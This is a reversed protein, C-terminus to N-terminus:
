PIKKRAFILASPMNKYSLPASSVVVDITSGDVRVWQEDGAAQAKGHSSIMEIQKMFTDRFEKSVREAIDTGLVDGGLLEVAGPNVYAIRGNTVICVAMPANEVLSRWMDESETLAGILKEYETIDNFTVVVGAIINNLTRYPRIRMDYRRGSVDDINVEYHGLDNLVKKACEHLKVDRLTTAFHAIPRGIDSKTIHFFDAVKPTFRRIKLEIDLFITAVETVDLLNKIDDNAALLEDIRSQLEQNVTSSEENLSQLEEKSTELEENTSQLEENTSQLEENTSKLEENSTELEEITTQLNERTYQLEDEMRRLEDVSHQPRVEDDTDPTKMKEAVVEQFIVLMIGRRGTQLDSLPRVTLNVDVFSGNNKVRVGDFSCQQREATVKTIGSALSTKLGPRAMDLLNFSVEGEAPELFRGTRGHIYIIDASDDIVVCTPMSTQTLIAKLVRVIDVDMAKPPPIAVDKETVETKAERSVFSVAKQGMKSDSGPTYIKWKRELLVFLDSAQGVSESSGLFLLGDRNLSYHFMPLLRKQLATDFYILLNRCCLMELRTFPPDRTINQLAFIVMERINKKVRYNNEEKSFFKKLREPEVDAAIATPYLGARAVAIADEDIDTGFIQVPFHRGMADMCERLVIAISYAEEGSSCGPVWIRLPSNEPRNKFLAPLHKRALVGFAEPDRFFRTVGILLLKFLTKLEGKSEQLYRVYDSINEINYVQMRKEVRRIITNQKYQSFDHDTAVRLLICMKKLAAALDIEEGSSFQKEIVGRHGIIQILKEGMKEPTLVLDVLGTAIASRPMGNYKASEPDQVMVIGAEAKIARIGITGDTGTGSLVIGMAKDGREQALSAFFADIPLRAGRSAGEKLLFLTGDHVALAKNPPIIYVHNPLIELNDTIQSVQMATKRQIIEPLISERSPDLHSIVVFAIGSNDPMNALLAEIAELGGASAGVGVIPVQVPLGKQGQMKGTTDATKEM